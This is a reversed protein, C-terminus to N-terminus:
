AEGLKAGHGPLLGQGDQTIGGPAQLVGLGLTDHVAVDFGGVQHAGLRSQDLDRIEAQCATHFLLLDDPSALDEARGVENGGFHHAAVTGVRAAIEVREPGRGVADERPVGGEFALTALLDQSLHQM